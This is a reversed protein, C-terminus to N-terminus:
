KNVIRGESDYRFKRRFNIKRKKLAPREYLSHVTGPLGSLDKKLSYLSFNIKYFYFKLVNVKLLTLPSLSIVNKFSKKMELSVYNKYYYSNREDAFKPFISSNFPSLIFIKSNWKRKYFYIVLPWKYNELRNKNKGKFIYSFKDMLFNLNELIKDTRYINRQNLFSVLQKPALIKGSEDKEFQLLLKFKYRLVLSDM